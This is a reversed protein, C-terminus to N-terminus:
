EKDKKFFGSIFEWVFVIVSLAIPYGYVIYDFWDDVFTNGYYAKVFNGCHYVYKYMLVYFLIIFSFMGFGILMYWKENVLRYCLFIAIVVLFPIVIFSAVGCILGYVAHLPDEFRGFIKEGSLQGYFFGPFIDPGLNVVLLTIFLIIVAIVNLQKEKLKAVYEKLKTM